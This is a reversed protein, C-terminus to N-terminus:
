RRALYSMRWRMVELGKGKGLCGGRLGRGIRWYRRLLWAVVTKM